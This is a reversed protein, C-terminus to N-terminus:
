STSKGPGKTLKDVDEKKTYLTVQVKDLISGFDQHLKAHLITGLHKLSFGKGRGTRRGPDVLHGEARHAHHGPCLQDPPSNTKGLIPEFDTQMKRGAVQVYIGLPLRSGKKVDKIDPGSSISRATRSRM